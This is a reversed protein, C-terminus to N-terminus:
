EIVEDARALLSPPVTLGLAKAAGANIILEFSTTQEFPLDAPKAGKFIKDAYRAAHRFQERLDVGYSILGGAEAHERFAYVAPVKVSLALEAIRRRENLFMADASVIV